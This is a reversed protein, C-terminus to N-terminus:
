GLPKGGINLFERNQNWNKQLIDTNKYKSDTFMKLLKKNKVFM